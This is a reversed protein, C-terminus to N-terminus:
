MTQRIHDEIFSDMEYEPVQLAESLMGYLKGRAEGAMADEEPSPYRRASKDNRRIYHTKIVKVREVPDDSHLAEQYFESRVKDAAVQITRIYPMREVLELADERTM